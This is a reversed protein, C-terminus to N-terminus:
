NFLIKRILFLIFLHVPYFAYFTYKAYKGKIFGRKGNYMNIPVLACFAAYGGSLFPFSLITKLLANERLMYLLVILLVGKIGYDIHLFITVVFTSVFFLAKYLNNWENEIVWLAVLGLLLVFYVNQRDMSIVKGTLFLDFPIESVIAFILLNRGYKFRDKSHHYGEAILFCFLPFALRGIMRMIFYVSFEKGLASFLPQNIFDVSGMMVALHDILMSVIAIIKLASGSFIRFDDFKIQKKAM